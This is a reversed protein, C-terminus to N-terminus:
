RPIAPTNAPQGCTTVARAFALAADSYRERIIEFLERSAHGPWGAPLATEPLGPDLYPIVRWEDLAGIWTAFAARAGGPTIDRAAAASAAPSFREIFAQHLMRVRELDWWRGALEALPRDALPRAGTFVTVEGALKLDALIDRVDDAVREPGIWLADSVTGCGIWDLRRRLQHRRDRHREPISFSVLCWGADVSAAPQFIRADGRELMPVAEPRLVYGAVGGRPERALVGRAALRTLTSRATSPPVELADLMTIAGATPMWGGLRRLTSGVITRLLSMSGGPRSDFDDLVTDAAGAAGAGAGAAGGAVM